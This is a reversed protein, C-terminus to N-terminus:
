IRGGNTLGDLGSIQRLQRIDYNQKSFQAMNSKENLIFDFTMAGAYAVGGLIGGAAIAGAFGVGKLIASKAAQLERQGQYNGSFNGINNISWNAYQIAYTSVVAATKALGELFKANEVELPRLNRKREEKKPERTDSITIYIKGVEEAM